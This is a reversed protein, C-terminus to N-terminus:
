ARRGDGSPPAAAPAPGLIRAVNAESFYDAPSVVGAATRAFGDMAEQNGRAATLVRELEPAPPELTAIAATFEYMALARRDRASQYRGMAEEFSRSGSFSEDLATACLEADLFADQIGQATIFDKNYGADGVLAWGAGYPRRFYNPVAMGAFREERRAARVREAFAPVQDVVALYSGEVDKRRADFEAFPWGAIVLTLDDNTPWAAMGRSPLTWDIFRGDMPLGSFYTYYAALLPPKENYPEAQVTRAVLSRLGDAGVVVRARETVSSGDPGHGRIGVVRGDELLVEDVTFGQRVEAGSKGAADVLIEDLVTRRPAYAVPDEATGPAGELTFPGFDFVYTHIPPCGTAVVRDLLGWRRLAGMGPPHVLHTSITDSPFTARDV